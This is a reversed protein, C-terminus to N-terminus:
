FNIFYFRLLYIPIDLSVKMVRLYAVYDIM